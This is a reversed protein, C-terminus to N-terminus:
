GKINGLPRLKVVRKSIGSNHVVHVVENIDKYADSVEEKLTAKGVSKVIIGRDELERNIARGKTARKAAHRSMVRGAGHCTSGFTEKMAKETGVLVYSNRGMDGPILVPQGVAQYDKPIEPRHPAFARTAGKRHVALKYRKGEVQYEEIKVINHAVDYVLGMGLDRPGINLVRQFVERAWHMLCQRNAWGYNAAGRMAGLYDEAEPSEFPACALQKDPINIGYKRVAKELVALYDTCVQHGFGRSGSHIMVTIQDKELGFTKAAEEDYVEEVFQIELFHNGSGLTGLQRSGRDYAKPSIRDPNAGEICGGDETYELDEGYGFGKEVAWQSGKTVVDKQEKSSLVIKGRGGVGAPIRAFLAEVLPRIKGKIDSKKLFSRM